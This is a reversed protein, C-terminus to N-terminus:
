REFTFTESSTEEARRILDIDVAVFVSIIREELMHIFFFMGTKM